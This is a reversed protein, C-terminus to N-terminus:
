TGRIRCFFFNSQGVLATLTAPLPYATTNQLLEKDIACLGAPAGSQGRMYTNVAESPVVTAWYDVDPLLTVTATFPILVEGVTAVVGAASAAMKTMVGGSLQYIGGDVSGAGGIAGCWISMGTALFQKGVRFKVLQAFGAFMTAIGYNQGIGIPIPDFYNATGANNLHILAGTGSSGGVSLPMSSGPM